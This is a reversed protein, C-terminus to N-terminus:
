LKPDVVAGRYSKFLSPLTLRVSKLMKIDLIPFYGRLINCPGFGGIGHRM